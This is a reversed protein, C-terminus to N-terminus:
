IKHEEHIKKRHKKNQLFYCQLYLIYKLVYIVRLSILPICFLTLPIFFSYSLKLTNLIKLTFVVLLLVKVLPHRTYICCLFIGILKIQTVAQPKVKFLSVSGILGNLGLISKSTSRKIHAVEQALLWLNM